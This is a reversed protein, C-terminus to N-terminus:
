ERYPSYREAHGSAYPRMYKNMSFKLATRADGFLDYTASVRPVIDNWYPTAPIEPAARQSIFRGGQLNGGLRFTNILSEFHDYRM